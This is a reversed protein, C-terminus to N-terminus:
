REPMPIIQLRREPGEGESRTAIGAFRALAMHVVRRERATMSEMTVVQGTTRVQEGYAQAQTALRQERLARFGDADVVLFPTDRGGVSAHLARNCLAQLADLTQGQRAALAGASPGDIELVIEDAERRVRVGGPMGMRTLTGELYAVTDAVAADLRAPDLEDGM